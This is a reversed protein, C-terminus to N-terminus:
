EAIGEIEQLRKQEMAQFEVVSQREKALLLRDVSLISIAKGAVAIEGVACDNFTHAEQVLLVAGSAVTVVEVIGDVLLALPPNGTKLIILPSYPDPVPESLGFLHDLRIVPIAAGELNLFGMMLPPLGPPKALAPLALIERVDSIPLASETKGLRFVVFRKDSSIAKNM